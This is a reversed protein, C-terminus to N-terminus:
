PGAGAGNSRVRAPCRRPHQVTLTILRPPVGDLIQLRADFAVFWIEIQRPLGTVRGTTTLYLYAQDPLLGMATTASESTSRSVATTACGRPLCRFGSWRYGADVPSVARQGPWRALASPLLCPLAYRKYVSM